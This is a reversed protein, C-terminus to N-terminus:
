DKSLDYEEGTITETIKKMPEGTAESMVLAVDIEPVDKGKCFYALSITPGVEPIFEEGKQIAEKAQLVMEAHIEEATAPESWGMSISLCSVPAATLATVIGVTTVKGARRWHAASSDKYISGQKQTVYTKGSSNSDTSKKEKNDSSSSSSKPKVVTQRGSPLPMTTRKGSGGYHEVSRRLRDIDGDVFKPYGGIYAKEVLDNLESLPMTKFLDPDKYLIHLDINGLARKVADWEKYPTPGATWNTNLSGIDKGRQELSLVEDMKIKLPNANFRSQMIERALNERENILLRLRELNMNKFLDPDKALMHGDIDGIKKVYGEPIKKHFLDRLFEQIEHFRTRLRRQEDLRDITDAPRKLKGSSAVVTSWDKTSERVKHALDEVGEIAHKITPIEMSFFGLPDKNLSYAKLRKSTRDLDELVQRQSEIMSPKAENDVLTQINDVVKKRQLNLDLMVKKFQPELEIREIIEKVFGESSKIRNELLFANESLKFPKMLSIYARNDPLNELQKKSVDLEFFSKQTQQLRENLKIKEKIESVFLEPKKVGEKLEDLYADTVEDFDVFTMLKAHHKPNPLMDIQQQTLQLPTFDKQAKQYITKLQTFPKAKVMFKESREVTDALEATDLIAIKVTPDKLLFFKEQIHSVDVAEKFKFFEENTLKLDKFEHHIGHLKQRLGEIRETESNVFNRAKRVITKQNIGGRYKGDEKYFLDEHSPSLLWARIPKPIEFRHNPSYNLKKFDDHITKFNDELQGLNDPPEIVVTKREKSVKNGDKDLGYGIVQGPKLDEALDRSSEKDKLVYAPSTEPTLNLALVHIQELPIDVGSEIFINKLMEPSFDGIVDHTLSSHKEGSVKLQGKPIFAPKRKFNKHFHSCGSLLGLSLFFVFILGPKKM